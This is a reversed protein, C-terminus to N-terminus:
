SSIPSRQLLQEECCVPVGLIMRTDLLLSPTQVKPCHCGCHFHCHSQPQGPLWSLQLVPSGLLPPLFHLHHTVTVQGQPQLQLTGNSKLLVQIESACGGSSLPCFLLSIFRTFLPLQKRSKGPIKALPRGM